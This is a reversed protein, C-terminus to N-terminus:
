GKWEDWNIDVNEQATSWPPAGPSNQQNWREDYANTRQNYLWNSIGGQLANNIGEARGWANNARGRAENGYAAGIQNASNIGAVATGGVAGAGQGSMSLNRNFWNGYETSALGTTYETLAKMANGGGGGVSFRNETDRMGENRVFNYGASEKFASQDGAMAANMRGIAGEGMERWPAYDARTLDYQRRQEEVTADRGAELADDADDAGKKSILASGISIVTPLTKVWFSM